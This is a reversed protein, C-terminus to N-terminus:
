KKSDQREQLILERMELPMEVESLNEIGKRGFIMWDMIKVDLGASILKPVLVSGVYGAGGTVLVREKIM